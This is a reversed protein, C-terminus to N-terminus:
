RLIDRLLQLLDTVMTCLYTLVATVGSVVIAACIEWILDKSRNRGYMLLKQTFPLNLIIAFGITSLIWLAVLYSKNEPFIFASLISLVFAVLGPILLLKINELTNGAIVNDCPLRYQCSTNDTGSILATVSASFSKMSIKTLWKVIVNIAMASSISCPASSNYEAIAWRTDRNSLLWRVMAVIKPNLPDEGLDLLTSVIYPKFTYFQKDRVLTTKYKLGGDANTAKFFLESQNYNGLADANPLKTYIFQIAKPYLELYRQRLHHYSPIQTLLNLAEIVWMTIAVGPQGEYMWYIGTDDEVKHSLLYEAGRSLASALTHFRESSRVDENFLSRNNQALIIAKMALATMPVNSQCARSREYKQYGWGGDSYAQSSLWYVSSRMSNRLSKNTGIKDREIYQTSMLAIIAKSTTWVSPAEDRGWAYQDEKDPTVIDDITPDHPVFTDRLAYLHDQMQYIASRPLLNVDALTDLVTALTSSRYRENKGIIYSVSGEETISELLPTILERIRISGLSDNINIWSDAMTVHDSVQQRNFSM